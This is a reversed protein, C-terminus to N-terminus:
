YRIELTLKAIPGANFEPTGQFVDGSATNYYLIEEKENKRFPFDKRSGFNGATLQRMDFGQGIRLMNFEWRARVLLYRLQGNLRVQAPEKTCWRLPDCKRAEKYLTKGSADELLINLTYSDTPPAGFQAHAVNPLVSASLMLALLPGFKM